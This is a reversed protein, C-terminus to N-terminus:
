LFSSSKYSCFESIGGNDRERLCSSWIEENHGNGVLLVLINDGSPALPDFCFILKDYHADKKGLKSYYSDDTKTAVRAYLPVLLLLGRTTDVDGYDEVLEDVTVFYDQNSYGNHTTSLVRLQSPSTIDPPTPALPPPNPKM